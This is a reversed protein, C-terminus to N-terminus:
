DVMVDEDVSVSFLICFLIFLCFYDFYITNLMIFLCMSVCVLVPIYILDHTDINVIV